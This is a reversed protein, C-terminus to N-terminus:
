FDCIRRARVHFDSQWLYTNTRRPNVCQIYAHASDESITLGLEVPYAGRESAVVYHLLSSLAHTCLADTREVTIKPDDIVVRDGFSHVPCRGRVELVEIELVM